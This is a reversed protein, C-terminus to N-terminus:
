NIWTLLAWNPVNIDGAIRGKRQHQFALAAAVLEKIIPDHTANIETL